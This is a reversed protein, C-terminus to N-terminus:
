REDWVAHYAHGAILHERKINKKKCFFHGETFKGDWLATEEKSTPLTHGYYHYLQAWPQSLYVIVM